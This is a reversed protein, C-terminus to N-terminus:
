NGYVGVSYSPRAFIIEGYLAFGASVGVGFNPTIKYAVEPSITIHESNNAFISTGNNKFNREGNKMSQVTYLRGTLWLKQDFINVGAEIGARVEDSYGNTRNNFAAYINAYAPADGITFGQGADIQLMQNFEGDGTQLSGTSGGSEDGLPLGLVVMASMALPMNPIGYKLGIDADGIGNIAEGPIITEGTTGSITNNFYARSFLPVSAVVTLRDTVGYEGYFITNFVGNTTNPDIKGQDTYHQDAVIWWEYLKLYAHGKPQPWGGALLLSTATVSFLFCLYYRLNHM